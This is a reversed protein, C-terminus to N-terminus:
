LMETNLKMYNDKFSFLDNVLLYFHWAEAQRWPNNLIKEASSTIDSTILSDLTKQTTMAQGQIFARVTMTADFIRKKHQEVELAALVHLKKIKIPQAEQM